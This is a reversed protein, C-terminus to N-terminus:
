LRIQHLESLTHSTYTSLSVKCNRLEQGEASRQIGITLLHLHRSRSETLKGHIQELLRPLNSLLNPQIHLHERFCELLAGVLAQHHEQLANVVQTRRIAKSDQSRHEFIQAHITDTHRLHERRQSLMKVHHLPFCLLSVLRELLRCRGRILVLDEVIRHLRIKVLSPLADLLQSNFQTLLQQRDHAMDISRCGKGEPEETRRHREYRFVPHSQQGQRSSNYGVINSDIQASNPQFRM